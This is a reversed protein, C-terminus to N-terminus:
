AVLTELWAPVEEGAKIRAILGGDAYDRWHSVLGDRFEFVGMYPYCIRTGHTDLYDDVGELLLANGTEASRTIRWNNTESIHGGFRELFKRVWEKGVLPREGVLYHYEVDDTLQALVGDIDKNKWAAIIAEIVARKESSGSLQEM